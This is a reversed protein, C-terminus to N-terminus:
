RLKGSRARDNHRDRAKEVERREVSNMHGWVDHKTHKEYRDVQDALLSTLADQRAQTEDKNV